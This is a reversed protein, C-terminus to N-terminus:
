SVLEEILTDLPKEIKKILIEAAHKLGHINKASPNDFADFEAPIDAVFRYYRLSLLHRLQYDVTDIVGDFIVDLLPQTWQAVGWYKVDKYYYPRVQGGNGLSVLLMNDADPFMSRAEAYACMAPNNAFVGGDVLTYTLNSQIPVIHAPTFFTPVASTARAVDRMYFDWHDEQGVKHSKFFYPARREIDYSTIIINTLASSLITNGLFRRLVTEIGHETYKNELLTIFPIYKQFFTQSFIEGSDFEFLKVSDQASFEPQNESNPKVLGLAIIGGVSTGAILDFLEAIRKNTRREIEALLVAEIIGKVGGGDLSLIKIRKSM